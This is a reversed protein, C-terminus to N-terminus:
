AFEDELDEELDVEKYSHTIVAFSGDEKYLIEHIMMSKVRNGEM